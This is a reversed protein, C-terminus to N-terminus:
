AGIVATRPAQGAIAAPRPTQGAAPGVHHAIIATVDELPLPKRLIAVINPSVAFLEGRPYLATGTAVIVRVDPNAYTAMTVLELGSEHGLNLDLLVADAKALLVERRAAGATAAHRVSHGAGSLARQGYRGPAPDDEVVLIEAM